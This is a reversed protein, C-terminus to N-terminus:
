GLTLPLLLAEDKGAKNDTGVIMQGLAPTQAWEAPNITVTSTQTAGPAVNIFDGQSIAPSWPNYKAAGNVVDVSDSTIDFGFAHYTIRPTAASLCPESPRCFQSALAPLEATTGDTPATALFGSAGGSHTSFVFSGFRGDFSGTTVAGVDVGVVIYDDEGDNNVDVYIDFENSAATSWRNYGNVAFVLVRDSGSPFSQVGIARVDNSGSADSPDSLGWAYYDADAAVAGGPNTLKATTSPSGASVSKAALKADLNSDARPVLYYPIRLTVGNNGATPTLKVLGAVDRLAAANGVTAVPVNLTVDLSATGGAPVTVPNASFAVSHPRGSANSDALSFTAASGGHNKLTLTLTGSYDSKIDAFGYSLTASQKPGYADVDTRTAPFAQVLGAGALRTSYNSVGAPDATNVMAAKLDSVKNWNPHAQRVLAAVGSTHPAAMSTGSLTAAGNGTGMGVSVISVGPATIEPKLADDGNRGGGSTFDALAKYNPNNILVNTMTAAGGDAAVLKQPDGTATGRIGLFPIHVDYAEGTDPNGTIHGENPPYAASTNIMASAAAGAKQAFVARAVRACTGRISVVMKGALPQAADYEAPYNCGLSVSGNANRLVKIGVSSGNAVDAGNSNQAVISQGTSLDLRVGPFTPTPDNAAVSM